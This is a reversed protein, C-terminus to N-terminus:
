CLSLFQSIISRGEVVAIHCLGIADIQTGAFVFTISKKKEIRIEPDAKIHESDYSIRQNPHIKKGGISLGVSGVEAIAWLTHQEGGHKMLLYKREVREQRSLRIHRENSFKRFDAMWKYQKNYQQVSDLYSYIKPHKTDLNAMMGKGLAAKLDARKSVIPFYVQREAVEREKKTLLPMINKEYFSYMTQDLIYRMKALVEQTLIRTRFSIDKSLKDSDAAHQLEMLLEDARELQAFIEQL